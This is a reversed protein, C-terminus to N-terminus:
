RIDWPEDLCTVPITGSRDSGIRETAHSASIALPVLLDV